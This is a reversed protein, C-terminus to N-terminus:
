VDIRLWSVTNGTQDSVIFLQENPSIILSTAGILEFGTSPTVTANGLYLKKTNDLSQIHLRYPNTSVGDVPIPTTTVAVQGSTIAM